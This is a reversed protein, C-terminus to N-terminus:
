YRKEMGGRRGCEKSRVQMETIVEEGNVTEGVELENVVSKSPVDLM